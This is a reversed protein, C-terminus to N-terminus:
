CGVIKRDKVQDELRAILGRIEAFQLGQEGRLSKDTGAITITLKEELSKLHEMKRRDANTLATDLRSEAKTTENQLRAESLRAMEDIRKEAKDTNEKLRVAEQELRDQLGKIQEQVVGHLAWVIAVVFALSVGPIIFEGM